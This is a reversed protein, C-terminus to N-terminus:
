HQVRCNPLGNELRKAGKGTVGSGRLDLRGLGQLKLLYPISEDTISDGSLTLAKLSDLQALQVVGEDTVKTSSLDLRELKSLSLLACLEHDRVETGTLLLWRLDSMRSLVRIDASTNQVVLAQLDLSQLAGITSFDHKDTREAMDLLLAKGPPVVVYGKADGLPQWSEYSLWSTREDRIHLSGLSKNAPFCVVRGGGADPKEEQPWLTKTDPEPSRDPYEQLVFKMQVLDDNRFTIVNISGSAAPAHYSLSRFDSTGGMLGAKVGLTTQIDKQLVTFVAALFAAYRKADFRSSRWLFRRQRKTLKAQRASFGFGVHKQLLQRGHREGSSKSGQQALNSVGSASTVVRWVYQRDFTQFYASGENQPRSSAYSLTSQGLGIIISCVTLVRTLWSQPLGRTPNGKRTTENIGIKLGTCCSSSKRGASGVIGTSQSLIM